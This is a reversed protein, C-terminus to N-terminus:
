FCTWADQFCACNGDTYQCFTGTGTCADGDTPAEAPCEEPNGEAPACQWVPDQGFSCQCEQDGYTCTPRPFGEVTCAADDAPQTAPCDEGNGGGLGGLGGSNGSGGSSNSVGGSGNSVGGSGTTVGGTGDAGGSGGVDAPEGGGCAAVTLAALAGLAVARFAGSKALGLLHSNTM